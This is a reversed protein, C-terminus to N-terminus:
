GDRAAREGNRVLSIWVAEMRRIHKETTFENLYKKRGADGMQRRLTRDRCLRDLRESFTKSDQPPTLMGTVGEDVISPIGRWHSALVPLAFSMAELLVCPFGESEYYTPFCFLEAQTFKEFKRDGILQGCIRVHDGLRSSQITKQVENEFESPQFSGVIDLQFPTGREVLSKCAELLVLIGKTRCVTGVYLLRVPASDSASGQENGQERNHHITQYDGFLDDACNPIIFERKAQFVEADNVTQKSMRVVGDPNFYARRFFWRSIPGLNPYMETIGSAHMHFLTKSFLPRVCILIVIDRWMPVRNPGSPPYYLVQSRHAFRQYVIQWVIYFLHFVKGIGFRGVENMEKSFAMRVHRKDVNEMPGNVLRETMIGQGHFPPPTQGVILVRVASDDRYQNM